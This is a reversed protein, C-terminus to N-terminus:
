SVEILDIIRILDDESYYEIEIKGRNGNNTLRVKTGFYSKLRDEIDQLDPTLNNVQSKKKQKKKQEDKITLVSKVIAETERVSLNEKIIKEALQIQGAPPLPLLARAHGATLKGEIVHQQIETPASLLRLTNAIYPRSKGVKKALEEQTLKFEDLLLQYASAEELPNLDERQINEILAIETTEQLNFDKILAPIKELGALKAARWRREGAVLEFKEGAKRVVIPQVLGHEKISKALEELAEQQFVKRPQYKNPEILDIKIEVIKNDNPVTEEAQTLEAMVDLDTPILAGLGKGLGRKAM